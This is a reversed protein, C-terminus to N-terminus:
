EDYYQRSGKKKTKIEKFKFRPIFIHSEAVNLMEDEEFVVESNTQRIQRKDNFKLESQFIHELDFKLPAGSFQSLFSLLIILLIFNIKIM